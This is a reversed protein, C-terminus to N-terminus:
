AQFNINMYTHMFCVQKTEQISEAGMSVRNYIFRM